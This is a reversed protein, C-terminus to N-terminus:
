RVVTEPTGMLRALNGGMIKRIVRDPVGELEDVYSPPHALGEPHPYDSGFLVRDEGVLDALAGLDEEWFPSIHINRKFVVVPDELFDQPIKKYLDALKKLLPAAWTGGNEIVALKLQPFRSLAGHCIFASVADEIARSQHLMRFAQPQFPLMEQNNGAWANAYHAYGSDSAHMGVLVDHEVVRAWFPDFEPLAFSRSGSAAPVPAPRILVVKAGNAVAWDLEEIAKDVIPLTIVPTPFIRDAYNFSWTELMWENLAHVAAHTLELDDKMREEVLSALTPFLLTRDLGQEDMLELRAKPERWAPLCRVPPGFIERRSKGEPNGKRYYDEQAGPRAVVDFTPNPIYESVKGRVMIKTRGRVDVYDIAGKYRDPLHKTLAERTEYMHNDADFIPVDVLETM